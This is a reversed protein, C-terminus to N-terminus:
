MRLLDTPEVCLADAIKQVYSLRVDAQGKEIANLYPRSVGAMLAFTTKNLEQEERLRAVNEGLAHRLVYQHNVHPYPHTDLPWRNM